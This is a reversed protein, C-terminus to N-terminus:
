AQGRAKLYDHFRDNDESLCGKSVAWGFVEDAAKILAAPDPIGAMGNWCAVLRNAIAKPGDWRKPNSTNLRQDAYMKAVLNQFEDPEQPVMIRSSFKQNWAELKKPLHESM